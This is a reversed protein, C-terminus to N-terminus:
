IGISLSKRVTKKGIFARLDTGNLGQWKNKETFIVQMAHPNSLSYTMALNVNCTGSSNTAAAFFSAAM